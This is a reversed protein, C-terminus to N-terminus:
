PRRQRRIQRLREATYKASMRRQCIIEAVMKVQGVSHREALMRGLQELVTIKLAGMNGQQAGEWDVLWNAEPM